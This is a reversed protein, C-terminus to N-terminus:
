YAYKVYYCHTEQQSAFIMGIRPVEVDVDMSPEKFENTEVNDNDCADDNRKGVLILEEEVKKANSDVEM